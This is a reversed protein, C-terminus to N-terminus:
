IAGTRSAETKRIARALCFCLLAILLPLFIIVYGNIDPGMWRIFSTENQYAGIVSRILEYLALVGCLLMAIYSFVRPRLWILIVSIITVAMVLRLYVIFASHFTGFAPPAKQYAGTIIKIYPYYLRLVGADIITQGFLLCGLLALGLATIIIKLFITTKM